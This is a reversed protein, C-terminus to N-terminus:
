IWSPKLHDVKTCRCLNVVKKISSDVSWRSLKACSAQNDTEMVLEKGRNRQQLGKPSVVRDALAKLSVIGIRRKEKHFAKKKLLPELDIGVRLQFSLDVVSIREFLEQSKGKVICRGIMGGEGPESPSERFVNHAHDIM